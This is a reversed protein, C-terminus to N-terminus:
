QLCDVILYGIGWKGSVTVGWQVIGPGLHVLTFYMYKEVQLHISYIFSIYM